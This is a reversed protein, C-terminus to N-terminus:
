LNDLVPLLKRAVEAVIRNPAEGREREIRKRYNEFDAQRRAVSEQAEELQNQLRKLEARTAVLEALAPGGTGAASLEGTTAGAADASVDPAYDESLEVQEPSPESLESDEDDFFQIPISNSQKQKRDSAM